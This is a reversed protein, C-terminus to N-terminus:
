RQVAPLTIWEELNWVHDARGAAMAPTRPEWRGDAGKVRLTRVPWCFNYSFPTFYTMSEHIEWKKSFRDTKRGKRANRHRDTGNPRELYSTNARRGEGLEGFVVHEEVSVVRNGERRKPVAAYCMGSPPEVRPGPPRGPTGTRPPTVAEGFVELIAEPYASWEDSTILEPAAGELLLVALDGTRPGVVVELVLRSDPDLAVHDWCDGKLDDAPDGPRCNKAKKGVFSWKEDVQVQTTLPSLGVLEDHLQRAHGGARAAYRAVTDKDTETLRATQRVGGGDALHALVDLAKPDPLKAGFLPPGKRESFRYKCARCYLLRTQNKGYRACTTLNGAGRQGYESEHKASRPATSIL